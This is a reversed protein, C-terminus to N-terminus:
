ADGLAMAELKKQEESIQASTNAMSDKFAAGVAPETSVVMAHTRAANAETLGAWRIAAEVRASMAATAIDSDATVRASRSGSFAVVAVLMVVIALVSLWLKHTIRLQGM